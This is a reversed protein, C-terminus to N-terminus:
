FQDSLQISFRHNALLVPVHQVGHVVHELARELLLKVGKRTLRAWETVKLSILHEPMKFVTVTAAKGLVPVPLSFFTSYWSDSSSFVSHLTLYM